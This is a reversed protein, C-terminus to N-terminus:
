VVYLMCSYFHGKRYLNLMLVDQGIERHAWVVRVWIFTKLTLWLFVAKTKNQCVHWQVQVLTMNHHSLVGGWWSKKWWLIPKLDSVMLHMQLPVEKTPLGNNKWSVYELVSSRLPMIWLSIQESTLVSINGKCTATEYSVWHLTQTPYSWLEKIPDLVPIFCTYLSLQHFRFKPQWNLTRSMMIIQNCPKGPPETTFFRGALTPSTPETGPSPLDGPSPFPWVSWYEQRSFEMCLPAQHDMTWPTVFLHVCSLRLM